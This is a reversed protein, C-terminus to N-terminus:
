HRAAVKGLLARGFVQCQYGRDEFGAGEALSWGVVTVDDRSEGPGIVQSHGLLREFRAQATFQIESSAVAAPHEFEIYKMPRIGILGREFFGSPHKAMQPLGTTDALYCHKIGGQSPADETSIEKLLRKTGVSSSLIIM